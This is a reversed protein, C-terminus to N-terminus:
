LAEYENMVYTDDGTDEAMFEEAATVAADATDAGTVDIYIRDDEDNVLFVRVATDGGHLRLAGWLEYDARRFTM